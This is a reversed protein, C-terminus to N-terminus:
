SIISEDISFESLTESDNDGFKLLRTPDSSQTATEYESRESSQEFSEGM